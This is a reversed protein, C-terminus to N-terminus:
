AALRRKVIFIARGSGGAGGLRPGATGAGNAGAGGGGTNATGATGSATGGADPNTSAGGNRGTGRLTGAGAPFGAAGGGCFQLTTWLTIRLGGGGNQRSSSSGAFGGGTYGGGGGGFQNGATGSAAGAAGSSGYAFDTALGAAGAATASGGGGGGCGGAGGAQSTTGGRGGGEAVRSLESGPMGFFTDSGKTGAAGGSGVTVPYTGAPLYVRGRVFAGAGGGGGSATSTVTGGGGGGGALIYELWGAQLVTLTGSATFDEADYVTSVGGDTDTWTQTTGGLIVAEPLNDPSLAFMAVAVDTSQGTPLTASFTAAFAGYATPTGSVVGDTLTLGAPLSGLVLAFTPAATTNAVDVLTALDLSYAEGVTYNQLALGNSSITPLAAYFPITQVALATGSGAGVTAVFLGPATPTGTIYGNSALTLGPPLTGVGPAYVVAMGTNTSVLPNLNLEFPVGVTFTRLGTPAFSITDGDSEGVVEGAQEILEISWSADARGQSGGPGSRAVVRCDMIPRFRIAVAGPIVVTRSGSATSGVPNDDADVGYVTGPVPDYKLTAAPGPVAFEFPAQLTVVDGQWLDSIPAPTQDTCSISVAHLRFATDGTWVANANWDLEVAGDSQIQRVDFQLYRRAGKPFVIETAGKYLKWPFKSM